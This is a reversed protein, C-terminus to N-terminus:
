ASPIRVSCLLHLAGSGCPSLRPAPRRLKIFFFLSAASSYMSCSPIVGAFLADPTLVADSGTGTGFRLDAENAARAPLAVSPILLFVTLFVACVIRVVNKM